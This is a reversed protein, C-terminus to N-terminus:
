ASLSLSRIKQTGSYIAKSVNTETSSTQVSIETVTRGESYYQNLVISEKSTLGALRMSQDIESRMEIASIEATSRQDILVSIQVLDNLKSDRKGQEGWENLSVFHIQSDLQDGRVQLKERRLYDTISGKVRLYAFTWFTNNTTQKFRLCACWLAMMAESM